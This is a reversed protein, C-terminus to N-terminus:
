RRKIAREAEIVLVSLETGLASAIRAAVDITPQREGRELMGVYTRHVGAAHALAEQSIGLRERHGRLVRVFAAAVPSRRGM